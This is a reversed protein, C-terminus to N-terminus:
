DAIRCYFFVRFCYILYFYIISLRFSNLGTGCGMIVHRWGFVVVVIALALYCFDDNLRERRELSVGFLAIGRQM